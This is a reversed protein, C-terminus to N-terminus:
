LSAYREIDNKEQVVYKAIKLWLKRRLQDDEEPRDANLKALELDGKELALDVSKEFLGLKSYIHICAQTRNRSRCLRLAYDLDYYPRETEPDEPASSLFQLLQGDVESSESTVVLTLLVNHITPNQSHSAFIQQQLYRIGHEAGGNQSASQCGLIAPIM